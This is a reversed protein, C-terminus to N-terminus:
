SSVQVVLACGAGARAMLPSLDFSSLGFSARVGQLGGVSLAMQSGRWDTRPVGALSPFASLLPSVLLSATLSAIVRIGSRFLM